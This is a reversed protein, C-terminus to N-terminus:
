LLPDLARDLEQGSETILVLLEGTLQGLCLALAVLSLPFSRFCAVIHSFRFCAGSLQGLFEVKQTVLAFLHLAADFLQKTLHVQEARALCRPPKITVSAPPSLDLCGIRTLM